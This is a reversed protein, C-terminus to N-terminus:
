AGLTRWAADARAARVNSAVDLLRRDREWGERVAPPSRDWAGAGLLRRVGVLAGALGVHTEPALPPEAGLARLLLEVGIAEELWAREWASRRAVGIAWGVVAAMVHVDEITRFPKLVTEYGDGDLLEGDAVDVAAFTAAAHPVDPTFALSPVPEMTVGARGRPVRAVRLANRGASEGTSAVVLLVDADAGLTVWAKRGSLTWGGGPRPALATRIARPHGGGEETACLATLVRARPADIRELACAYGGAFAWGVSEAALGALAAREVTGAVHGLGALAERLSAASTVRAGGGADAALERIWPSVV